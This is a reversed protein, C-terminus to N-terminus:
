FKIETHRRDADADKILLAVEALDDAAAVLL